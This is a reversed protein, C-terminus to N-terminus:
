LDQDLFGIQEMLILLLMWNMMMMPDRKLPPMLTVVWTVMLM